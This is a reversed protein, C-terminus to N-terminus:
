LCQIEEAACYWPLRGRQSQLFLHRIAVLICCWHLSRHLFGKGVSITAGTDVITAGLCVKTGGGHLMCSSLIRGARGARATAAARACDGNREKGRARLRRGAVTDLRSKRGCDECYSDTDRSAPCPHSPHSAARSARNAQTALRGESDACFRRRVRARERCTRTASGRAHIICCLNVNCACAVCRSEHSFSQQASANALKRLFHYSHQDFDLLRTSAGL